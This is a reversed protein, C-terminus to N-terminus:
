VSFPGAAAAAATGTPYSGYARNKGPFFAMMMQAFGLLVVASERVKFIGRAAIPNGVLPLRRNSSRQCPNGGVVTVAALKAESGTRIAISRVGLPPSATRFIVAEGSLCHHQVRQSAGLIISTAAFRLMGIVLVQPVLSLM